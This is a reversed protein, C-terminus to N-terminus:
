RQIKAMHKAAFLHLLDLQMRYTKMPLHCYSSGDLGLYAQFYHEQHMVIRRRVLLTWNQINYYHLHEVYYVGYDAVDFM